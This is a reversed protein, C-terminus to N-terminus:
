FRCHRVHLRDIGVTSASPADAANTAAATGTGATPTGGTSTAANSAERCAMNGPMSSCSATGSTPPSTSSMGGGSRSKKSSGKGYRSTDNHSHYGKPPALLCPSMIGRRRTARSQIRQDIQKCCSRWGLPQQHARQVAQQNHPPSQHVHHARLRREEERRVRRGPQRSMRDGSGAQQHSPLLEYTEIEKQVRPAGGGVVGQQHNGDACTQM